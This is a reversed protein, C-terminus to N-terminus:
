EITERLQQIETELDHVRSRLDAIQGELEDKLADFQNNIDNEDLM